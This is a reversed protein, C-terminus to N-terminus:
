FLSIRETYKVRLDRFKPTSTLVLHLNLKGCHINISICFSLFFLPSGLSILSIPLMIIISGSGAQKTPLFHQRNSLRDRSVCVSKM